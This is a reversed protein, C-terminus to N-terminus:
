LEIVIGREVESATDEDEQDIADDRRRQARGNAVPANPCRRYNHGKILCNSCIVPRVDKHYVSRRIRKTKPRGVPIKFMPPKITKDIPLNDILIPHFSHKYIEKQNPTSYIRDFFPEETGVEGVRYLACCAHACPYGM